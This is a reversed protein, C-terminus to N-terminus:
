HPPSAFLRQQLEYVFVTIAFLPSVILVRPVIGRFLAASGENQIITRPEIFLDFYRYCDLQGKYIPDGPRPLVQLRTKVVDAPTVVAAACAGSVVGAGFVAALSTKEGPVTGWKKLTAQMSFFMLSFPVDRALTATTGKYLGRLGLKQIVQVATLQAGERASALQLQIKTIEMPNTAIVQCLGATAGSLMGFALPLGDPHVGLFSGPYARMGSYPAKGNVLTQNQLRTKVMDLPFVISTGIVGAIAGCILKTTLSSSPPTEPNSTAM